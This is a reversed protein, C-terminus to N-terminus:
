RTKRTIFKLFAKHALDAEPKWIHKRDHFFTVLTLVLWMVLGVVIMGWFTAVLGYYSEDNFNM